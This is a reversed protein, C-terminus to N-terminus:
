DTIFYLTNADPTGIADYQAQTGTWFQTSVSARTEIVGTSRGDTRGTGGRATGLTGSTIDTASHEHATPTFTTPKDNVQVWTTTPNIPESNGSGDIVVKLTVDTPM